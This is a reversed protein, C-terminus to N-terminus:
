IKYEDFIQDSTKGGMADIANVLARTKKRLINYSALLKVKAFLLKEEVPKSLFDDAGAEISKIQNEIDNLATVIIVPIDKTKEQEKLQLVTGYGDLRPMMVDLIIVDPIRKAVKELCDIGDYAEEAEYGNTELYKRLLKATIKNDDVVLVYPKKM